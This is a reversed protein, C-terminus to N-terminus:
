DGLVQARANDRVEDPVFKATSRRKKTVNRARANEFIIYFFYYATDFVTMLPSDGGDGWQNYKYYWFFNVEYFDRNATHETIKKSLLLNILKKFHM